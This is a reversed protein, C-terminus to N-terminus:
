QERLAGMLSAVRTARRAPLYAALAATTIAVATVLALTGFDTPEVEHLLDALFRSLMVAAPLGIALGFAALRLGQGVVMSRVQTSTAGLAMRIGIERARQEVMFALVGFIGLSALLLALAGFATFLNTALWRPGTTEIMVDRLTRVDYVPLSADINAITRRIDPMVSMPDRNTRVVFVMSNRQGLVQFPWYVAPREDGLVGFERVSGVVGVVEYGVGEEDWDQLIHRGLVNGDPFITRALVDSIVVVPRQGRVDDESISRGERLPIGAAAFYNPTVNRLEVFSSKLEPDVPSVLTTINYGGQLPTRETIGAAQVAPIRQIGALAQDFFAASREPSDYTAGPLQVQFTVANDLQVGTDIANVRWFSHVLLGAGVVLVIAVAVEGVVLVNQLATARGSGRAGERLTGYLNAMDLRLVPVAGVLFGVILALVAAFGLVPLSLAIDEGRPLSDGYLGLLVRTTSWAFLLGFAAGTISLLLGETIHQAAIRGRSAGLAARVATDSTRRESRVLMLNAVNVSGIVLVLLVAATLLHLSSRNSDLAWGAFPLAQITWDDNSGPNAESVQAFITRLEAQGAEVTLGPALRGLGEMWRSGRGSLNNDDWAFPVLIQPSSPFWFREPMIGVITHPRADILMTSGLATSAGDFREQWLRHSIVVIDPRGARDEGEVFGRGIMPSMGLTQFFNETVALGSAREPREGGAINFSEPAYAALHEFARTRERLDLFNPTSVGGSGGTPQYLDRFKVLRDPAGYPLPQLLVAHILGFMATSGGIGVALTLVAIAAYAPSRLLTRATQIVLSM